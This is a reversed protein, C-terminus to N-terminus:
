RFTWSRWRFRVLPRQRGNPGRCPPRPPTVPKLPQAPPQPSPTGPGAPVVARAAIATSKNGGSGERPPVLFGVTRSPGSDANQRALLGFTGNASGDPAGLGTVTRTGLKMAQGRFPWSRGLSLLASHRRPDADGTPNLVGVGLLWRRQARDTLVLALVDAPAALLPGSRRRRALSWATTRRSSSGPRTPRPTSGAKPIPCRARSTHVGAPLTSHSQMERSSSAATCCISFRPPMAAIQM